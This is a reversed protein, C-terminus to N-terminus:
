TQLVNGILWRGRVQFTSSFEFHSSQFKRQLCLTSVDELLGVTVGYRQVAYNNKVTLFILELYDVKPTSNLLLIEGLARIIVYERAPLRLNQDIPYHLSNLIDDIKLLISSIDVMYHKVTTM